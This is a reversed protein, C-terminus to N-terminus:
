GEGRARILEEAAPEHVDAASRMFRAFWGDGRALEAPAGQETVRGKEIVYVRDAQQILSPRHSTLVTTRGAM